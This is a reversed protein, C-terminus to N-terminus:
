PPWPCPRSGPRAPAGQGADGVPEAPAVALLLGRVRHLSRPVSGQQRGAVDLDGALRALAMTHRTARSASYGILPQCHLKKRHVAPWASPTIVKLMLFIIGSGVFGGVACGSVVGRAWPFLSGIHFQGLHWTIGGLGAGANRLNGVLTGKSLALFNSALFVSCM